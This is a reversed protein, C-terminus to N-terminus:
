YSVIWAEVWLCDQRVEIWCSWRVAQSVPVYMHVCKAKVQCGKKVLALLGPLSLWYLFHVCCRIYLFYVFLAQAQLERLKRELM